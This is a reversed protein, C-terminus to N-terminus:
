EKKQQAEANEIDTEVFLKLSEVLYDDALEVEDIKGKAEKKYKDFEEQSWDRARQLADDIDVANLYKKETNKFGVEWIQITM